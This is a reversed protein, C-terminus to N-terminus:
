KCAKFTRSLKLMGGEEAAVAMLEDWSEKIVEFCNM